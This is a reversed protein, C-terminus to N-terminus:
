SYNIVSRVPVNNPLNKRGNLSNLEIIFGLGVVKAQCIDLLKSAAKATGGTALLDDVILVKKGKEILSKQVEIRSIGYELNYEIGILEGPLKGTKRIPLFGICKANALAAGVIFGRSEIGAILEPKVEDCFDGLMKIAYSWATPSQLLPNFDRFIIGKKPFDPINQVFDKINM